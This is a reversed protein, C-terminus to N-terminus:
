RAELVPHAEFLIGFLTRAFRSLSFRHFHSRPGNVLNRTAALATAHHFLFYSPHSDFQKGRLNNGPGVTVFLRGRKWLTGPVSKM